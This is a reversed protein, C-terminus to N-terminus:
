TRLNPMYGWKVHKTAVHPWRSRYKAACICFMGTMWSLGMPLGPSSPFDHRSLARSLDALPQSLPQRKPSTHLHSDPHLSCPPPPPSAAQGSEWAEGESVSVRPLVLSCSIPQPPAPVLAPPLPIPRPPDAERQASTLVRIQWDQREDKPPGQLGGPGGKGWESLLQSKRTGEDLGPLWSIPQLAVVKGILRM